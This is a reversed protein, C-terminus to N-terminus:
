YKQDAWEKYTKVRGTLKAKWCNKYDEDTLGRMMNYAGLEFINKYERDPYEIEETEEERSHNKANQKLVKNEEELSKIKRTQVEVRTKMNDFESKEVGVIGKKWIDPGRTKLEAVKEALRENALMEADLLDELQKIRKKMMKEALLGM